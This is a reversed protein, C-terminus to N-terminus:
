QLAEVDLEYAALWDYAIDCLAEYCHYAARQLRYPHRVSLAILKDCTPADFHLAEPAWPHALLCYAEDPMFPGLRQVGLFDYPWSGAGPDRFIEKPLVRSATVLRLGREVQCLARCGRLINLDFGREPAVDFEDLLLVVRRHHVARKFDEWTEGDAGLERIAKTRLQKVNVPDFFDWFVVAQGPERQLLDTLRYLLSSKGIKREGVLAVSGGELLRLLRGLKAERGVFRAPDSIAVIDTFPNLTRPQKRRGSSTACFAARWAASFFDEVLEPQDKLRGSLDEADWLDVDPRDKVVDRLSTSAKLSVMVVYQDADFEFKEVIHRLDGSTMEKWRKCQYCWLKLGGGKPTRRHALIDIGAQYDGRVGYRHCDVIDGDSAILRTCLREFNDWSLQDFPLMQPRSIVPPQIEDRAPASHLLDELVAPDEQHM